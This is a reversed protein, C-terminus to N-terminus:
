LIKEAELKSISHADQPNPLNNNSFKSETNDTKKGNVKISSL